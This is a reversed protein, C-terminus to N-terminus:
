WPSCCTQAVIAVQDMIIVRHGDHSQRELGWITPNQFRVRRSGAQLTSQPDRSLRSLNLHRVTCRRGPREEFGQFRGTRSRPPGAHGVPNERRSISSDRLREGTLRALFMLCTVMRYALKLESLHPLGLPGISQKKRSAAVCTSQSNLHWTQCKSDRVPSPPHPPTALARV